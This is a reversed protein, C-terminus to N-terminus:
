VGTKFTVINDKLHEPQAPTIAAPQSQPTNGCGGGKKGTVCHCGTRCEAFDVCQGGEEGVVSLLPAEGQVPLELVFVRVQGGAGQSSGGEGSGAGLPDVCVQEWWHWYMTHSSEGGADRAWGWSSSGSPLQGRVGM